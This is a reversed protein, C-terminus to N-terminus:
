LFAGCVLNGYQVGSGPREDAVPSDLGRESRGPPLEGGLTPLDYGNRLGVLLRLTEEEEELNAQLLEAVRSM